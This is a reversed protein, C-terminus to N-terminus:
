KEGPSPSGVHAGFGTEKELENLLIEGIWFLDGHTNDIIAQRLVSLETGRKTIPRTKLLRVNNGARLLIKAWLSNHVWEYGERDQAEAAVACEEILANREAETM